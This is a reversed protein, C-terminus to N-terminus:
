IGIAGAADHQGMRALARDVYAAALDPRLRLARDADLRAQEYEHREREARGRHFYPWPSQPRLVIAVTFCDEAESLRGRVAHCRGLFMWLAFDRPDRRSADILAPLADRSAAGDPDDLSLLAYERASRIPTRLARRRAREAGAGDGALRALAARQAWLIRPIEGPAACAEALANLRL